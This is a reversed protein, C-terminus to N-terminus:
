MHPNVKFTVYVIKKSNVNIKSIYLSTGELDGIKISLFVMDSFNSHHIIMFHPLGLINYLGRGSIKM